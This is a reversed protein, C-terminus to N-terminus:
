PPVVSAATPSVGPPLPLMDLHAVLWRQNDVIMWGRIPGPTPVAINTMRVVFNVLRRTADARKVSQPPPGLDDTLLDSGPIEIAVRITGIRQRLPVQLWVVMVLRPIILPYASAPSIGGRFVGVHTQQGNTEDRVDECFYGLVTRRLPAEATEQWAVPALGSKTTDIV